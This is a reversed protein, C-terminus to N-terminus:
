AAATTRPPSCRRELVPDLPDAVEAAAQRRPVRGRPDDRGPGAMEKLVKEMEDPDDPLADIQEKSLVNSFRDSKPDSAATAPDRGVAVSEAVKEIALTVERRNDGARVRVDPM